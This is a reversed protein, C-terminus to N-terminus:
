FLKNLNSKTKKRGEKYMYIITRKLHLFINSTNLLLNNYYQFINEATLLRSTNM